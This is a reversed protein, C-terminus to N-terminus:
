KAQHHRKARLSVISFRIPESISVEALHFNIGVCILKSAHVVDETDIPRARCAKPMFCGSSSSGGRM